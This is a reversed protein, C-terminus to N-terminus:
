FFAGVEFVPMAFLVNLHTVFGVLSGPPGSVTALVNPPSTTSRGFSQWDYIFVSLGDDRQFSVQQDLFLNNAVTQHPFGDFNIQTTPLSFETPSILQTIPSAQLRSCTLAVAFFTLGWIAVTRNPSDRM